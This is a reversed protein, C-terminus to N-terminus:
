KKSPGNFIRFLDIELIWKIKFVWGVLQLLPVCPFFIRFSPRFLDVCDKQSFGGGGSTSLFSILCIGPLLASLLISISLGAMITGIFKKLM